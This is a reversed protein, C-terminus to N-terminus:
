TVSAALVDLVNAQEDEPKCMSFFWVLTGVEAVDRCFIARFTKVRRAHGRIRWCLLAAHIADARDLGLDGAVADLRSLLHSGIPVGVTFLDPSRPM